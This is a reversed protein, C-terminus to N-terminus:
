PTVPLKEEQFFLPNLQKQILSFDNHWKKWSQALCFDHCRFSLILFFFILKKKNCLQFTRFMLFFFWLPYCLSTLFSMLSTMKSAPSTFMPIMINNTIYYVYIYIQFNKYKWILSLFFSSCRCSPLALLFM